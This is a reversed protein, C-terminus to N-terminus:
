AFLKHEDETFWHLEVGQRTSRNSRNGSWVGDLRSGVTFHQRHSLGKPTSSDTSYTHKHTNMEKHKYLININRYINNYSPNYIFTDYIMYVQTYVLWM